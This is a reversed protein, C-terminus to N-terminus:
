LKDGSITKIKTWLKLFRDHWFTKRVLLEGKAYDEAIKKDFPITMLIPINEKECYDFVREDGLDARNIVVGLPINLIRVVGVALKLDYLGFPTPETVLIAMDVGKLAAIVPCSTGPPADIVAVKNPKIEKKVREILPVAQAEGIKLYGHVFEVEKAIGKELRGIEKSTEFIAEKPCILKCGGCSHCLEPFILVNKGLVAIANFQCFDACKRCFDCKELDVKPVPVSVIESYEIKPKLFLHGNPEEVDCDVYQAVKGLVAALNTAITTKGTWGKGSAICIRM